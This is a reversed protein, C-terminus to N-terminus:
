EATGGGGEKVEEPEPDEAGRLKLSAKDFALAM